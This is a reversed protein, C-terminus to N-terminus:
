GLDAYSEIREWTLSRLVAGPLCPPPLVVEVFGSRFWTPAKRRRPLSGAKLATRQSESGEGGQVASHPGAQETTHPSPLAVERAMPVFSLRLRWHRNLSTM